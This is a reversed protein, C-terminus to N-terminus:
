RFESYTFLIYLQIYIFYTRSQKGARFFFCVNAGFTLASLAFM